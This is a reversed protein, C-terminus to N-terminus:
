LLNKALGMRGVLNLIDSTVVAQLTKLNLIIINQCRFPKVESRPLPKVESQIM